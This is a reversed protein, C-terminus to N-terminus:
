IELINSIFFQNKSKTNGAPFINLELYLDNDTQFRYDKQLM